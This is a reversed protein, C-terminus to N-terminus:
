GGLGDGFAVRGGDGVLSRKSGFFSGADGAKSGGSDIDKRSCRDNDFKGLGHIVLRHFGM